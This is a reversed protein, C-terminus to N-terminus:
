YSGRCRSGYTWPFQKQWLNIKTVHKIVSVYFYDLQMFIVQVGTDLWYLGNDHIKKLDPVWASKKKRPAESELDRVLSWHVYPVSVAMECSRKLHDGMPHQSPHKSEWWRNITIDTAEWTPSDILLVTWVFKAPQQVVALKQLLSSSFSDLYILWINGYGLRM